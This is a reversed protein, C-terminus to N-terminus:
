NQQEQAYAALQELLAELANAQTNQPWQYQVQKTGKKTEWVLTLNRFETGDQKSIGFLKGTNSKKKLDMGQIADRLSQWQQPTIPISECATQESSGEPFCRVAAIQEPYVEIYFQNGWLSDHGREFVIGVLSANEQSCGMLTTSLLLFIAILYKKM